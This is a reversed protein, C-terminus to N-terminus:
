KKRIVRILTKGLKSLFEAALTAITTILATEAVSSSSSKDDTTRRNIEEEMEKIKNELAEVANNLKKIESENEKNEAVSEAKQKTLKQIQEKSRRLEEVLEERKKLDAKEQEELQATTERIVKNVEKTEENEFHKKGDTKKKMNEFVPKIDEERARFINLAHWKDKWQSVMDQFYPKDELTMYITKEEMEKMESIFILITFDKMAEGFFNFSREISAMDREGFMDIDIVILFCHPGPSTLALCKVIENANEQCVDNDFFNPTNVIQFKLGFREASVSSCTKIPQGYEFFNSGLLFRREFLTKCRDSNGLLVIRLEEEDTFFFHLLFFIDAKSM